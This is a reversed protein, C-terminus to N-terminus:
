LSRPSLRGEAQKPPAGWATSIRRARTQRPLVSGRRSGRTVRVQGRATGSATSSRAMPQRNPRAMPPSRPGSVSSPRITARLRRPRVAYSLAAVSAATRAQTSVPPSMPRAEGIIRAMGMPMQARSGSAAASAARRSAGSEGPLGGRAAAMALAM